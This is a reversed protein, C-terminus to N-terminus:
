RYRWKTALYNHQAELASLVRNYIRVEGIAGKWPYNNAAGRGIRFNPHSRLNGSLPTPTGSYDIGNVYVKSDSSDLTALIHTWENLPIGVTSNNGCGTGGTNYGWFWAIDTAGELVCLRIATATDSRLAMITNEDGSSPYSEPYVWAEFTMATLTISWSGDVFDDVGDFYRGSPRWLAGTVACPYGRASRDAFSVGDQLCLPLYLVLSPDFIFDRAVKM